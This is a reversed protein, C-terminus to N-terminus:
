AYYRSDVSEGPVLAPPESQKWHSPYALGFVNVSPPVVHPLGVRVEVDCADNADVSTPSQNATWTDRVPRVNLGEFARRPRRHRRVRCCRVGSCSHLDVTTSPRLDAHQLVREREPGLGRLESPAKRRIGSRYSQTHRLRTCCNSELDRLGTTGHWHLDVLVRRM